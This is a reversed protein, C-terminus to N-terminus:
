DFMLVRTQGRRKYTVFARGLCSARQNGSLTYTLYGPPCLLGRQFVLFSLGTAAATAYPRRSAPWSPVGKAVETLVATAGTDPNFIYRSGISDSTCTAAACIATTVVTTATPSVWSFLLTTATDSFTTRAEFTIGILEIQDNAYLMTDTANTTLDFTGTVKTIPGADYPEPVSIIIRDNVTANAPLKPRIVFLGDATGYDVITACWNQPSAGDTTYVFELEFDGYAFYETPYGILDSCYFSDTPTDIGTVKSVYGTYDGLTRPAKKNVYLSGDTTSGLPTAAHALQCGVMLTLTLALM